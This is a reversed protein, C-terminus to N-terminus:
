QKQRFGDIWWQTLHYNAPKTPNQWQSLGNTWKDLISEYSDKSLNYKVSDDYNFAAWGGYNVAKYTWISWNYGEQKMADSMWRASEVTDAGAKMEGLFIPVQIDPYKALSAKYNDLTAQDKLSYHDSYVANTPFDRPMNEYGSWETLIMRDPDEARIATQWARHPANWPSGEPEINDVFGAVAGNGKFHKAVAGWVASMQDRVTQGEPTWRSPLGYKDPEAQHPWYHLDFIVYIGRKGAERVV